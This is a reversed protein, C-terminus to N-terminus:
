GGAVRQHVRQVSEQTIAFEAGADVKQRFRDLERRRDLTTPDLGVGILAFTQPDIAQGGLDLGCNLRRQVAVMGISDTDFVGTAHPYNGLKPPDGTVFLINHIGCAAGAHNIPRILKEDALCLDDFCRNTFVHHRYIETGMAGDFVLVGEGLAQQFASSSSM